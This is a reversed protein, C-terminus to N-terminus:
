AVDRLRLRVGALLMPALAEEPTHETESAYCGNAPATYRHTALTVANVVWYERVGFSAYLRAKRGRDKKLTKDAVEIVLLTDHGRVLHGELSRPYVVIDPLTFDGDPELYLSPESDIWYTQGLQHFLQDLLWRKVRLHPPNHAQMEIIEGDIVEFRREDDLIGAELMRRVHSATFRVRGDPDVLDDRFSADTM